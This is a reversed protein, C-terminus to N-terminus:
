GDSPLGRAWRVDVLRPNFHGDGPKWGPPRSSNAGPVLTVHMLASVLARRKELVSDDWTRQPDDLFPAVADAAEIARLKGDVEALQGRVTRRATALELDTLVDAQYLEFDKRNKAELSKRKGLLADREEGHDAQLLQAADNQQMRGVALYEIYAELAPAHSGAHPGPRRPLNRAALACRYAPDRGAGRSKSTVPSGCTWCLAIGTLLHRPAPGPSTRRGPDTLVACVARHKDEDVIPPWGARRPQGAADLGLDVIQGRHEMLAANRPRMLIVRVDDPTLLGGRTGALGMAHWAATIGYVTAGALVDDCGSAVAAAEAENLVLTGDDLVAWGFPRPGGLWRGEGAAEAKAELMREVAHDVEGHAANVDARLHSRGNSTTVDYDGGAKTAILHGGDRRCARILIEGAEPDRGLRDAHWAAIGVGPRRAAEALMADFRPRPPLPADIDDRLNRYATKDEDSFEGDEIVKGGRREIMATTAARQRAIGAYGVSKRLYLLWEPPFEDIM